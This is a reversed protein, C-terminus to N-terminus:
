LSESGALFYLSSSGTPQYAYGKLAPVAVAKSFVGNISAPPTAGSVTLTTVAWTDPDIQYVTAGGAFVLYTDTATDHYAAFASTGAITAAAAGSLDATSWSNGAVSYIMIGTPTNYTDGLVVFRQRAADFLSSRYYTASGNDPFAAKQTWTGASSNWHHLHTSGSLWVDDTTFDRALAKGVAPGGAPDPWTDAADWDNATLDFADVNATQFNGNGWASGVGMRFIRNRAVDGHLQYYTHSSTPRGDAYYNANLIYDAAPTPQNRMVWTPTEAMLDCTVCENGAYDAHGGNGAFGIVSGVSTLGCWADMRYRAGGTPPVDAVASALQASTIEHWEWPALAQRWAPLGPEITPRVGWEPHADFDDRLASWNSAGTLRVYADDAGTVGHEVAYALAPMLNGWYSAASPFNGNRLSGDGIERAGPSAAAFYIDYMAGWNAYWPGTGGAWDPADSPAVVITYPAADRFLWESAGAGGFRGVISEAKWAFFAELKTKTGAAVSPDAALMFGIAATYFDQQWSADTTTGDTPTGYADGYPTVFGFPNNPQAVFQAHLADINATLSNITQTKIPDGDPSVVAAQALTRLAWAAGRVQNSGANSLLRGEALVRSFDNQKLYNATAQFQVTDVHYRRGTVLAAMYGMAPSHSLAYTAVAGGDAAPTYTNAQSAGISTVGSGAGMVLTPHTAFSLPRNTNEDRYHIGYRGASYANRQLAAWVSSADSTLYAADWQPLLGISPHYGGSGMAAPFSGQQLPTYTEPLTTVVTSAADVTSRYTPVLGTASMYAADHKVIVGPDTGLWHSLASGNVLPTRTHNKLDIAESFRQSGGLTFSYAESKNTPGAVMLYGNEIWPLVEVAGSAWLRVELWAVLHADAGVQKRYIWSSMVPGSAWAEFPTDWDTGAWSAAGFAGADVSATIGTAKLEDTDLTTGNIPNGTRVNVALPTDATLAATGAVVAMRASGDPWTSKVTTQVGDLVQGAPLDGQKFVHGIAYPHTASSPSTLTFTTLVAGPTVGSAATVYSTRTRTVSGGPGTVTLEVDYTGAEAFVFTPNQSVSTHTVVGGRRVVWAWGEISGTSQDTFTVALPATGSVPAGIFEAVPAVPASQRGFRIVSSGSPATINRNAPTFPM